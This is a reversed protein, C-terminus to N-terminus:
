AATISGSDFARENNGRRNPAAVAKFGALALIAKRAFTMTLAMRNKMIAEIRKKLSAGTVRSVCPM